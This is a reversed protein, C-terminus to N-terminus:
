TEDEEPAPLDRPTLLAEWHSVEDGIYIPAAGTVNWRRGRWEACGGGRVTDLASDSPALCLVRELGVRGLPTPLAQGRQENTERITQLFAHTEKRTGDAYYFTVSQGYREFLSGISM